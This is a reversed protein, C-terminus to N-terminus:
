FRIVFRYLPIRIKGAEWINISHQTTPHSTVSKNASVGASSLATTVNLLYSGSFVSENLNRLLTDGVFTEVSLAEDAGDLLLASHNGTM